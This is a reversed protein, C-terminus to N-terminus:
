SATAGGAALARGPVLYPLACAGVGAAGITKLVTRRTIQSQQHM